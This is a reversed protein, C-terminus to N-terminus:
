MSMCLLFPCWWQDDGMNLLNMSIIFILQFVVGSFLKAMQEGTRTLTIIVDITSAYIYILDARWQLVLISFVCLIVTFPKFTYLKIFAM